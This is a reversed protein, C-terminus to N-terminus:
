NYKEGLAQGLVGLNLIVLTVPTTILVIVTQLITNVTGRHNELQKWTM